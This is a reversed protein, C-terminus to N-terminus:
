KKATKGEKELGLTQWNNPLDWSAKKGRVHLLKM